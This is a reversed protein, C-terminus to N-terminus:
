TCSWRCHPKHHFRDCNRFRRVISATSLLCKATGGPGVVATPTAQFRRLLSRHIDSKTKVYLALVALLALKVLPDTSQLFALPIQPVFETVVAFVFVAGLALPLWSLAKLIYELTWAILTFVLWRLTKM